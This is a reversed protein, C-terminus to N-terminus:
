EGTTVADTGGEKNLIPHGAVEGVDVGESPDDGEEVRDGKPCLPNPETRTTPPKQRRDAHPLHQKSLKRPSPHRSVGQLDQPLTM